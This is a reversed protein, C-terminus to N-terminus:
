RDLSGFSKDLMSAGLMPITDDVHADLSFTFPGTRPQNSLIIM